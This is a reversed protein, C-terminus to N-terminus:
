FNENNKSSQHMFLMFLIQVIKKYKYMKNLNKKGKIKKFNQLYCNLEANSNSTCYIEHKNTCLQNLWNINKFNM